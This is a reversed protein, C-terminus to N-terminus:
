QICLIMKALTLECPDKFKIIWTIGHMIETDLKLLEAKQEPTTQILQVFDVGNKNKLYHNLVRRSHCFMFMFNSSPVIEAIKTYFTASSNSYKINISLPCLLLNDLDNLTVHKGTKIYLSNM